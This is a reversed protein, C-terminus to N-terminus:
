TCPLTPVTFIRPAWCLSNLGRASGLYALIERLVAKFHWQSGLTGGLCDCPCSAMCEHASAPQCQYSFMSLWPTCLVILQDLVSLLAANSAFGLLMAPGQKRLSTAPLVIGTASSSDDSMMTDALDSFGSKTYLFAFPPFPLPGPHAASQPSTCLSPPQAPSPGPQAPLGSLLKWFLQGAQHHAGAMRGRRWDRGLVPSCIRKCCDSSSLM